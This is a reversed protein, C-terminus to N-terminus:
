CDSDVWNGFGEEPNSDKVVVLEASCSWISPPARADDPSIREPELILLEWSIQGGRAATKEAHAEEVSWIRGHRPCTPPPYSSHEASCSFFPHTVAILRLTEDGPPM